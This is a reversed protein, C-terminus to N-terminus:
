EGRGSGTQSSVSLIFASTLALMLNVGGTVAVDGAEAGPRACETVGVKSIILIVFHSFLERRGPNVLSILGTLDGFTKRM